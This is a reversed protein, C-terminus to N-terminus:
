VESKLADQQELKLNQGEAYVHRKENQLYNKQIFKKKLLSFYVFTLKKKMYNARINMSRPSECTLKKYIM